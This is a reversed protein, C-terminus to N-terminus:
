GGSAQEARLGSLIYRAAAPVADDLWAPVRDRDREIAEVLRTMATAQAELALAVREQVAILAAIDVSAPAAAPREVTEVAGLQDTLALLERYDLGLADALAKIRQPDGKHVHGTAFSRIWPAPIGTERSLSAWSKRQRNAARQIKDAATTVAV